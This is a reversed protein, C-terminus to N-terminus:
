RQIIIGRGTTICARETWSEGPTSSRIARPSGPTTAKGYPDYTWSTVIGTSDVMAITSGLADRLLTKTTRSETRTFVEDIGLSTLHDAIVSGTSSQEQVINLGDYLYNRTTGAVTKQKRRGAADYQFSAAVPGAIAILQDRTNWSYTNIGDNFLNGNDDYSLATADQLTLRNNADHSNATQAVPLGTRAFSGGQSTRRGALDYGYTLDGLTVTGKKYTIGTLQNANDYGYTLNIGNPLTLSTRRNANDYGITLSQAGQTIGTLRNANDYAYVVQAQGPAQLTARRSANDYTYSVTGQATTESIKRDFSDYGRSIAGNASDTLTLLRNGADYGYTITSQYTTPAGVTAGFGIQTVRDLPDYVFGKVQGKRDTSRLLNGNADYAFSDVKVLPNTRSIMRNMDDYAYQTLNGRPDKFTLRNGNLDYTSEVTNGLADTQKLLQDFVDYDLRTVNGLPDIMGVVRGAGDSFRQVVRGLADTIKVLDAGDYEFTTTHGLPDTVTKVQQFLPEYTHSTTHAKLNVASGTPQIKHHCARWVACPSQRAPCIEGRGPPRPRPM